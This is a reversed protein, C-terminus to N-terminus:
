RFVDEIEAEQKAKFSRNGGIIWHLGIQAGIL